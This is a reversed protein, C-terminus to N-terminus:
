DATSGQPSATAGVHATRVARPTAAKMGFCLRLLPLPRVVFHYVAITATAALPVLLSFKAGIGLPLTVVWAALLVVAPQHLVYVPFASESLSRFTRNSCRARRAAFGLLFVVIGWGAVASLLHSLPIALTVGGAKAKWCAVLAGFALVGVIGGRHAERHIAREFGPWRALLFGLGFYLSYYSVNAWDDALNQYGPWRSRLTLQVLALPLVPLWAHSRSVARDDPRVGTRAGRALLPLYLMSFTFLYALFWLHSWTLGGPTFYRPLFETFGIAPEAPLSHGSATVFLGQRLEIWRIPPCIVVIGFALPVLLREVRERAFRAPGRTALSGFASWGALLFFLPMHWQHVFGTFLGMSPSLEGNKVPYFPPIDFVKGSHFVFLLWTAFIRLWDVDHRRRPLSPDIASPRTAPALPM